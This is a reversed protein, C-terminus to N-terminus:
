RGAKVCRLVRLCNRRIFAMSLRLTKADYESCFTTGADLDPIGEEIWQREVVLRAFDSSCIPSLAPL